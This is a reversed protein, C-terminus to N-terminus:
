IGVSFPTRDRSALILSTLDSAVREFDLPDDRGFEPQDGLLTVDAPYWSWHPIPERRDNSRRVASSSRV